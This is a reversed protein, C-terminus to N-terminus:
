AFSKNPYDKSPSYIIDKQNEPNDNTTSIKELTLRM